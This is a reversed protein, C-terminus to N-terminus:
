QGLHFFVRLVNWFPIKLQKDADMDDLTDTVLFQCGSEEWVNNKKRGTFFRLFHDGFLIVKHAGFQSVLANVDPQALHAMNVLAVDDLTLKCANLLNSLLRFLPEALYAEQPNHILLLIHQTNNGLFPALESVPRGDENGKRAILPQDYLTALLFPDLEIAKLTM